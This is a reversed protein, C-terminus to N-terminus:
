FCVFLVYFVNLIAADIVFCMDQYSSKKGGKGEKV